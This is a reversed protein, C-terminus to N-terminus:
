KTSARRKAATPSSALFEPPLTAELMKEAGNWTTALGERKLAHWGIHRFFSRAVFSGSHYDKAFTVTFANKEGKPAAKIAMRYKTKDWLIVVTKIGAGVLLRCAAANIAVRGGLAISLTPTDVRISTRQFLEYAVDASRRAGIYQFRSSFAIRL